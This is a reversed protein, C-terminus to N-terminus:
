KKNHNKINFISPEDPGIQGIKKYAGEIKKFHIYNDKKDKLHKLVEKKDNPSLRNIYRKIRDRISEFSRDM